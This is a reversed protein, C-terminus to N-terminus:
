HSRARSGTKAPRPPEELVMVQLTGERLHAEIRGLLENAAKALAIQQERQAGSDPIGQAVAPPLINEAPIMWLRVVGLGLVIILVQLYFNHRQIAPDM